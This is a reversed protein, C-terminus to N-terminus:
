GGVEVKNVNRDITCIAIPIFIQFFGSIADLFIGDRCLLISVSLVYPLAYRASLNFFHMRFNIVLRNRFNQMDNVFRTLKHIGGVRICM